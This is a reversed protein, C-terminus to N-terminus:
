GRPIAAKKTQDPKADPPRMWKKIGSAIEEKCEKWFRPLHARNVYCGLLLSAAFRIKSPRAPEFFGERRDLLAQCYGYVVDFHAYGYHAKAVRIHERFAQRRGGVTKSQLHIRSSALLDDVKLMRYRRSIRIWLDYDLAFHLEENLGGVARFVESRIFAAPQCIFCNRAFLKPDFPETPYRGIPSGDRDVWHGEGYVVAADPNGILHRVATRVAGACYTDDANLFAFFRGRAMAFGQNVANSQGRDPRSLYRLRGEYRRLIDLTGDSSGGDMVIYEIEPYDQSLVSEITEELFAAANYAPTVISVLPYEGGSSNLDRKSDISVLSREEVASFILIPWPFEPRRTPPM